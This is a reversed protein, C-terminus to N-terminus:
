FNVIPSAPTQNIKFEIGVVGWQQQDSNSYFQKIEDLLSESSDEGFKDTPLKQFLSAFDPFHHLCTITTHIESSDERSIFILEDGVQFEQRKEDNLRSEITKDGRLIKKFPEAHVRLTYSKM